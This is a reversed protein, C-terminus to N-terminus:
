GFGIISAMPINRRDCHLILNSILPIIYRHNSCILGLSRLVASLFSEALQM